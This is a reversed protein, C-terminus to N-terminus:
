KLSNFEKNQNGDSSSIWESSISVDLKIKRKENKSEVKMTSLDEDFKDNYRKFSPSKIINNITSADFIKSEV